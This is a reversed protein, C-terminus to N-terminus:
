KLYVINRYYNFESKLASSLDSKYCIKKAVEMLDKLLLFNFFFFTTLIKLTKSNELGKM